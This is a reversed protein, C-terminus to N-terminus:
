FDTYLPGPAIPVAPRALNAGWVLRATTGEQVLIAHTGRTIELTDGTEYSVGDIGIPGEEVTYTGPVLFEDTFESQQGAYNKGAIWVPWAFEVYNNRLAEIDERLFLDDREGTIVQELDPYNALFLPIPQEEMAMRYQPVKNLRYLELGWPTLLGNGKPWGGLMYNHDFYAVPEPFIQQVNSEVQRQREIISRDETLWILSGMALLALALNRSSFREIALRLVPIGAIALPAFLFVYFYGATNTYFLLCLVPLWLGLLAVKTVTDLGAKRVVFPLLLIIAAMLPATLLAKIIMQWYPPVGLFFAWSRSRGLVESSAAVPSDDGTVGQSHLWYIAGFALAAALGCAAIRVMEAAQWGSRSARWYALGAFAPAYLVVKISVMPALGALAGFGLIHLLRLPSLVLIALASCLLATAIPDVRFSTGHQLVFGASVYALLAFAATRNDSFRQAIAFISALTVLEFGFMAVRAAVIHDTSTSFMGPLWAFLRTHISQLPRDLRGDALWAVGRFYSYEDWNIARTFVLTFQLVLLLVLAALPWIASDTTRWWPRTTASTPLQGDHLPNAASAM